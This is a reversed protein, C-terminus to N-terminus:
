DADLANHYFVRHNTSVEPMLSSISVDNSVEFKCAALVRNSPKNHLKVRAYFSAVKFHEAWYRTVARLTSSMFGLRRFDASLGFSLEISRNSASLLRLDMHGVVGHRESHIAYSWHTRYPHVETAYALRNLSKERKPIPMDHWQMIEPDSFLAHYVEIDSRQWPRLVGLDLKISPPYSPLPMSTHQWELRERMRQRFALLYKPDCGVFPLHAPMADRMVSTKPRYTQWYTIQNGQLHACGIRLCRRILLGSGLFVCVLLWAVIGFGNCWLYNTLLVIQCGLLGYCLWIFGPHWPLHVIPRDNRWDLVNLMEVDAITKLTFNFCINDIVLSRM